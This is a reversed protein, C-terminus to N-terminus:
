SIRRIGKAFVNVKSIKVDFTKELVYKVRKQVESLVETIKINNTVYVYIDLNVRKREIRVFISHKLMEGEMFKNDQETIVHRKAFGAIGYCELVCESLTQIIAENSVSIKGNTNKTQIAM